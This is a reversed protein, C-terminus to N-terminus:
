HTSSGAAGAESIPPAAPAAKAPTPDVLPQEKGDLEIFADIKQTQATEAVIHKQEDSAKDGRKLVIGTIKNSDKLDGVYGFFEAKGFRYEGVEYQNDKAPKVQLKGGEIPDRAQAAGALGLLLAAAGIIASKYM